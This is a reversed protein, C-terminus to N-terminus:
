DNRVIAYGEELLIAANKLDEGMLHNYSQQLLQVAYFPNHIGMSKDDEIFVWNYGAERQTQTSLLTDGLAGALDGGTTDVGSAYLALELAKLLGEVESQVGEVVEDGDYDDNARIDDFSTLAGHCNACAEVTPEFTHGTVAPSAESTYEEMNLYTLGLGCHATAAYLSMNIRDCFEAGKIFHKKAEEIVMSAKKMRNIDKADLQIEKIINDNKNINLVEAM